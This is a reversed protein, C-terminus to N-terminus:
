NYPDAPEYGTDKLYASYKAATVPFKDIYFPGLQLIQNHNRTPHKEWPYQVDVGRDDPDWVSQGGEIEVGKSKFPFWAKGVFVSGEPASTVNAIKPIDVMTQQLFDWTSNYSALTTKTMDQMESMFDQVEQDPSKQLQLVCGFGGKEIDFSLTAQDKEIRPTLQM